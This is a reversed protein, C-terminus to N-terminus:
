QEQILRMYNQQLQINSQAMKESLGAEADSLSEYFTASRQVAVYEQWLQSLLTAMAPSDAQVQELLAEFQETAQEYSSEKALAIAGSLAVELLTKKPKELNETPTESPDTLSPDSM